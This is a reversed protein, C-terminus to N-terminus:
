HVIRKPMMGALLCGQHVSVGNKVSDQGSCQEANRRRGRFDKKPGCIWFNKGPQKIASGADAYGYKAPEGTRDQRRGIGPFDAQTTGIHGPKRPCDDGPPYDSRHEQQKSQRSRVSGRRRKEERQLAHGCREHGPKKEL